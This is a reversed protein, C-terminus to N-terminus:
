TVPAGEIEHVTNKPIYGSKLVLVQRLEECQEPTLSTASVAARLYEFARDEPIIRFDQPCNERVWQAIAFRGSAGIKGTVRGLYVKVSNEAVGLQAGIKKNSLGDLVGQIVQRDRRTFHVHPTM